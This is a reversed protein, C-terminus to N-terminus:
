MPITFAPLRRKMSVPRMPLTRAPAASGGAFKVGAVAGGAVVVTLLLAAFGNAKKENM